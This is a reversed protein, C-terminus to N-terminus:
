IRAHNEYTIQIHINKKNLWINNIKEQWSRKWQTYNKTMLNSIFHKRYLRISTPQNWYCYILYQSFESERSYIWNMHKLDKLKKIFFSGIKVHDLKKNLKKTKFNKTFLYVKDKKKLLSAIKRKRNVYKFFYQQMKM